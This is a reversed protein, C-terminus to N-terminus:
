QSEIIQFLRELETDMKVPYNEIIGLIKENMKVNRKYVDKLEKIVKEDFQRDQRLKVSYLGLASKELLGQQSREIRGQRTTLEKRGEPERVLIEEVIE